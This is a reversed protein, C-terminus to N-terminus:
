GPPKFAAQTATVTPPPAPAVAPMAETTRGYWADWDFAMEVMAMEKDYGDKKVQSRLNYVTHFPLKKNVWNVMWTPIMGGPDAQVQYTADIKGPALEILEWHGELHPMRVVGSIEPANDHTTKWFDIRIRKKKPYAKTSGELVIDRDSIFFAPSGTRNYIIGKSASKLVITRADVCNKMWETKRTDNRLVALIKEIPSEIIGRGRFEVLSSNPIERQWVTIGADEFLEEWEAEAAKEASAPPALAGLALVVTVSITQARQVNGTYVGPRGSTM